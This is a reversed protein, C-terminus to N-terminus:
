PKIDRPKLEPERTPASQDGIITNKRRQANSDEEAKQQKVEAPTEGTRAPNQVIHYGKPQEVRKDQAAFGM